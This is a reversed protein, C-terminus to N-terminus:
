GFNFIYIDFNVSGVSYIFWFLIEFVGDNDWWFLTWLPAWVFVRRYGCYHGGRKLREKGELKGM